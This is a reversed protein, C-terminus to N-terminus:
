PGDKPLPHLLQTFPHQNASDSSPFREAEFGRLQSISDHVTIEGLMNLIADAAKDRLHNSWRAINGSVFCRHPINKRAAWIKNEPTVARYIESLRIAKSAKALRVGGQYGEASALINCETLPVLIRRVFSANTDLGVALTESTSRLNSEENAAVAIVIQLASSFRTDIM